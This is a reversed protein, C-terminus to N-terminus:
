QNWEHRLEGLIRPHNLLNADLVWVLLLTESQPHFSLPCSAYFFTQQSSILFSSNIKGLVQSDLFLYVFISVTSGMLSAIPDDSWALGGPVNEGPLSEEPYPSQLQEMLSTLPNQGTAVPKLMASLTQM